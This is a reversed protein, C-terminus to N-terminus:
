TIVRDNIVQDYAVSFTGYCLTAFRLVSPSPTVSEKISLTRCQCLKTIASTILRLGFIAHRVTNILKQVVCNQNEQRGLKDRARLNSRM